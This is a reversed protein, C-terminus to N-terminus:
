RPHLRPRTVGKGKDHEYLSCHITISGDPNAVASYHGRARCTSLARATHSRVLEQLAEEDGVVYHHHIREYNQELMAISNRAGACSNTQEDKITYAVGIKLAVAFFLMLGAFILSMRRQQQGRRIYGNVPIQNM